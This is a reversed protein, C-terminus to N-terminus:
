GGHGPQHHLEESVPRPPVGHVPLLGEQIRTTIHASPRSGGSSSGTACAIPWVTTTPTKGPPHYDNGLITVIHRQISDLLVSNKGTSTGSSKQKREAM